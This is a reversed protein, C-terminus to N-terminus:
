GTASATGREPSTADSSGAPSRHGPSATTARLGAARVLDALEELMAASPPEVSGLACDMGVAAYKASAFRHYGLLEIALPPASLGAAFQAIASINEPAATYGPVIPVRIIIPIGSDSCGMLNDLILRNRAGTHLLHAAADMFKLDYLILDVSPLLADLAEPSGHGSTDLTTHLGLDCCGSLIAQAFEPQLLPEGGSVTVGGGSDDYFARDAALEGIVYEASVREGRMTLAESPCARACAGCDDCCERTVVPGAYSLEIAGRPCAAVCARCGICCRPNVALQPGPAIGEPNHCWACRLPCGKLFVTSRIGPGDHVAYRKIDFIMGNVAPM